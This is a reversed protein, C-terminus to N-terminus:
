ASHTNKTSLNNQLSKKFYRFFMRYGECLYNQPEKYNDTPSFVFRDKPCGGFCLEVVDCHLCRSSLNNLKYEGFNRNTEMIENLPSQMINGMKYEDFVYRDCRYIDGNHEIAACHGCVAEHVCLGAPRHLLNGITAEFIQVFKKGIDKKIWEDFVSCLFRGYDAAPVNFNAKPQTNNNASYIGPPLAVDKNPYLREVVPLFQMYDSISRLFHYVESAHPANIANVTALTNYSVHHQKLLEIGNMVKNFSGKGGSSMRYANHLQEPGDISIGIRFNNEAFFRCWEDNLLTGNTQLTNLIHRGKGYQHQLSIAKAFFDLGALTPEGGHWAFEIVANTGHIDIVSRIYQELVDDPMVTIKNSSSKTRYYCYTCNLNCASGIPKVIISFHRNNNQMSCSAAKSHQHKVAM